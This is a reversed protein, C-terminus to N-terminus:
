SGRYTSYSWPSLLLPVHYHGEPEAIAFVIPVLGLFAPEPLALGRRAFYDGADFVLEYRGIPLPRDSILPQSTRGDGNTVTRLLIRHDGRDFLERLELAMGEAPQGAHTDLVHTSLTGTVTLPGAGTVLAHLRLAAIRDIEGLAAALESDPQNALRRECQRLISEKGHRRVCIIFPHGFRERYARNLRHFREYEEDSLRDLGASHQEGASEATLDSARATKDGLEPHGRVLALRLGEEAGRVSQRLAAYLAAITAFPRTAYAAEAVWPAHEYINGLASGFEDKSAENLAALSIM